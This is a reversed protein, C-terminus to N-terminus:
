SNQGRRYQIHRDSDASPSLTSQRKLQLLVPRLLAYNLLDALFAAQAIARVFNPVEGCESAWRLWDRLELDTSASYQMTAQEVHRSRRGVIWGEVDRVAKDDPEHLVREGRCIQLLGFLGVVADFADDKGDPFGTEIANRLEPNISVQSRHAWGLLDSGFRKRSEIDTKSQPRTGAFWRYFEAPYTEAVIIGGSHLLFEMSGDFPWIRILDEQVAQTLVERWGILAAKGVQKGGLTWFLCSAESHGHGARECLRLLPELSSVGHGRFLDEMQRGKYDGNPYFPRYVSIQQPTDCVAHFASWEGKGLQPLFDRFRTIGAREAFHVPIGIPFDFGTFVTQQDGAEAKLSEILQSL